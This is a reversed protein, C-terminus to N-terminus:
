HEYQGEGVGVDLNGFLYTFATPRLDLVRQYKNLNGIDWKTLFVYSGDPVDPNDYLLIQTGCACNDYHMDTACDYPQLVHDNQGYTDDYWSIGGYAWTGNWPLYQGDFIDYPVVTNSNPTTSSNQAKDDNADYPIGNITIFVPDGAGDYSVAMGPKSIPLDDNSNAKSIASTNGLGQKVVKMQNNDDYQITTGPTMKAPIKEGSSSAASCLFTASMLGAVLFVSFIIKFTKKM